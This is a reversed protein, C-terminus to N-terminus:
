FYARPVHVFDNPLLLINQTLDAGRLAATLDLKIVFSQDGQGRRIVLVEDQKSTDKAFGGALTVAQLVRLSGVIEFAGPSVVEGEVHVVPAERVERVIVSIEPNKLQGTYRKALLATLQPASLNAAQVEHILQLSIRGDPRVVLDEENLEPNFFFKVSLKDGPKIVYQEGALPVLEPDDLNGGALIKPFGNVDLDSASYTEVNLGMGSCSSLLLVLTVWLFRFVQM